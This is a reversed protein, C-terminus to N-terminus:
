AHAELLALLARGTEDVNGAGMTICVDGARLGRAITQAADEADEVRIVHTAGAARAAAVILGADVGPIPKERAAYVSTVFAADALTLAAGFEAAFDRTRTYLHPQFVAVVRRNPFVTRAAALTAEVETPHHAYDDIMVVGAAEGVREFRRAVGGFSALGRQAADFGAGLELAAAMAGLANRVNHLGPAPLLIEGLVDGHLAVTFRTGADERSVDLARLAAAAGTGYGLTRVRAARGLLRAAGADDICATLLGTDPLLEVFQMFANVVEDSSGYIDLHDAEISTVIAVDPQLTLFSRDYEDAEVVFIDSGGARLGSGWQPVRGGVFGTPDLGAETLIMTAMATTTTKGHTGAVGVVHGSNVLAGLAQSRKLLPAGAARCAALEAHDAPAASTAIVAVAVGALESADGIRIEAGLRRLADVTAGGRLESGTVSGGWRLVLEALTSMGAGAIGVFHVAGRQSLERLDVARWDAAGAYRNAPAANV